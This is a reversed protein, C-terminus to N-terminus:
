LELQYANRRAAASEKKPIEPPLDFDNQNKYPFYPIFDSTSNLFPLLANREGWSNYSFVDASAKIVRERGKVFM